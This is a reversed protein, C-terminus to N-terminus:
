RELEPNAGPEFGVPYETTRNQHFGAWLTRVGNTTALPGVHQQLGRWDGVDILARCPGCAYFRDGSDFPETLAPHAAVLQFPRVPYFVVPDLEGCFDCLLRGDERRSGM